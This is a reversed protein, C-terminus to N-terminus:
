PLVLRWRGHSECTRRQHEHKKAKRTLTILSEQDIFMVESHKRSIAGRSTRGVYLKSERGTDM